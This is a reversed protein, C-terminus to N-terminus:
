RVPDSVTAALVQCLLQQITNTRAARQGKRGSRSWRPAPHESRERPKGGRAGLPQKTRPPERSAACLNSAWCRVKRACSFQQSSSEAM